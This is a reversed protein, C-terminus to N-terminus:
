VPRSASPWRARTKWWGSVRRAWSFLRREFTPWLPSCKTLMMDLHRGNGLTLYRFECVSDFDGTSAIEIIEDTHARDMNTSRFFSLLLYWWVLLALASVALTMVIQTLLDQQRSLLLKEIATAVEASARDSPKM